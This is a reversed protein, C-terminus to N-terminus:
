SFRGPWFSLAFLVAFAAAGVRWDPEAKLGFYLGAGVGIAAPTWLSLRAFDLAAWRRLGEGALFAMRSVPPAEAFEEAVSGRKALDAVM